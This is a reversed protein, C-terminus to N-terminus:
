KSENTIKPCWRMQQITQVYKLFTTVNSAGTTFYSVFVQPIFNYSCFLSSIISGFHRFLTHLLQLSSPKVSSFYSFLEFPKFHDSCTSCIPSYCRVSISNGNWTSPSPTLPLGVNLHDSLILPTAIGFGNPPARTNKM